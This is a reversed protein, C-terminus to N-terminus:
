GFLRMEAAVLTGVILSLTFVSHAVIIDKM